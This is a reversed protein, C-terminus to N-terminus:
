QGEPTHPPLRVFSEFEGSKLSSNVLPFSRPDNNRSDKVSFIFSQQSPDTKHSNSSDWAIPTFGRFILDKTTLIVTVTTVSLSGCDALCGVGLIEVSSPLIIEVLVTEFFAEKEIRSLRSRSEFAVSCLPGCGCFYKQDSVEVLSPLIIELPGTQGFVEKEIRSLRSDSEFIVWSLSKCGYFCNTGLLGVSDPIVLFDLNENEIVASQISENESLNKSSILRIQSSLWQENVLAV